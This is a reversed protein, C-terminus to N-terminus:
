MMKSHDCGCINCEIYNLLNTVDKGNTENTENLKFEELKIDSNCIRIYYKQASLINSFVGIVRSKCSMIYVSTSMM